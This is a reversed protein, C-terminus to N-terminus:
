ADKNPSVYFRKSVAFPRIENELHELTLSTSAVGCIFQLRLPLEDITKAFKGESLPMPGGSIEPFRKPAILGKILGAVLHDDFTVVEVKHAFNNRIRSIARLDSYLDPPLIGVALGLTQLNSLTARKIFRSVDKSKVLAHLLLRQLQGEVLGGGLVAVGRDSNSSNLENSIENFRTKDDAM